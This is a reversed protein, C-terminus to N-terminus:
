LIEPISKVAAQKLKKAVSIYINQTIQISSHGLLESIVKTDVEQEFLSTAFTHRLCHPGVGDMDSIEAAACIRNFTKNLETPPLVSGNTTYILRDTSEIKPFLEELLVLMKLAQQNLPVIRESTYKTQNDRVHTIWKGNKNKITEATDCVYIAKNDKFINERSLGCMEGERLGTNMIFVLTPGHKYVFKGTKFKRLAEDVFRKRENNDPDVKLYRPESRQSDFKRQSPMQVALMYNDHPHIDRKIEVAFKYCANFADYVKKVSSHSLGSDFAKDICEQIEVDTLDKMYTFRFYPKIHTNITSELRRYSVDGLTKRKYELFIDFYEPVTLDSFGRTTRRSYDEREQILEKLKAKAEKQTKARRSKMKGGISLKAVWTGDARKFVSGDGKERRRAM